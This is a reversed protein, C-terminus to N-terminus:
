VSQEGKAPRIEVTSPDFSRSGRGAPHILITVLCAIVERQRDLDLSDWASVVDPASALDHLVPMQLMSALSESTKTLDARLRQSAAKLQSRDIEGEAFSVALDDLRLRLRREHDRLARQQSDADDDVMIALTEPQSLLVLIADVVLSEIPQAQRSM